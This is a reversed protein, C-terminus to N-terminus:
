GAAAASPSLSSNLCAAAAQKQKATKRWHNAKIKARTEPTHRRGTSTASLKARTEATITRLKQKAISEPSRKKGLKAARMKARTEDSIIRGKQAASMRAITEPSKKVGKLSAGSKRRHEDQEAPSLKSFWSARVAKEDETQVRGLCHKNGKHRRSQSTKFEDTHKNGSAGEGGDTINSLRSGAARLDAIMKKEITFAEGETHGVSIIEVDFGHKAAINKWYQNRGARSHSRRGKGKGVYFITGDTSRRHVYVYFLNNMNHEMLMSWIHDDRHSCEISLNHAIIM